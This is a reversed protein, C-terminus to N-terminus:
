ENNLEDEQLKHLQGNKVQELSNLLHRANAASRLLYATEELASFDDYSMLICNAGNQRTILTPTRDNVVQDMVTALNARISTYSIHRM